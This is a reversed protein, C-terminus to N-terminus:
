QDEETREDMALRVLEHLAFKLYVRDSKTTVHLSIEVLGGSTVDTLEIAYDGSDVEVDDKLELVQAIFSAM